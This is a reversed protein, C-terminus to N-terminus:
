VSGSQWTSEGRILDEFTERKRVVKWDKGDVMVEPPRPRSNYNSAMAFSYAGASFVALYAGAEVPPIKRDKALFDGSECIPGVIDTAPFSGEGEPKDTAVPWIRHYSGYLSPRILDNMGGDTVLFRKKGMQKRYLAQVVLIGANGVIFRGPEILLKWRGGSALPRVAEGIEAASLAEGRRYDIGFGGGINIYRIPLDEEELEKALAITREVAKVYPEVTTIQSGIHVHLGLLQIGPLRACKRLVEKAEPIAIGFKNEEKGTTIYEHTSPDVDPNLRVAVGARKGEARAVHDVASLEEDSEINIMLIGSRIAHRIEEETKGVGSFIIKEPDAGVMRAKKLEGVSVVDFGCGADQLTQIVALNSNAKISYCVLFDPEPFAERLREHHHLLTRRSYIYLPTGERSAIERVPVEECYLEGDRYNFFDM